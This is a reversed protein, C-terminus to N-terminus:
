LLDGLATEVTIWAAEPDEQKKRLAELVRKLAIGWLVVTDSVQAAPMDGFTGSRVKKARQVEAGVRDELEQVVDRGGYVQQAALRQVASVLTQNAEVLVSLQGEVTALRNYLTPTAEEPDPPPVEVETDDEGWEQGEGMGMAASYDSVESEPVKAGIKLTIGDEYDEPKKKEPEDEDAVYDLVWENWAEPKMSKVDDKALCGQSCGVTREPFPAAACGCKPCAKIVMWWNKWDPDDSYLRVPGHAKKINEQIREAEQAVMKDVQKRHKETLQERLAKAEKEYIERSKSQDTLRENLEKLKLLLKDNEKALDRNTQDINNRQTKLERCEQSLKQNITLVGEAKDALALIMRMLWQQTSVDETGDITQRLHDRTIGIRVENEEMFDHFEKMHASRIERRIFGDERFVDKATVGKDVDIEKEVCVLSGAKTTKKSPVDAKRLYVQVRNVLTSTALHRSALYVKM